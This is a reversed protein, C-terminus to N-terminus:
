RRSVFKRGQTRWNQPEPLVVEPYRSMLDKLDMRVHNIDLDGKPNLNLYRNFWVMSSEPDDKYYRFLFGLKKAVLHNTTDLSWAKQLTSASTQYRDTHTYLVGLAFLAETDEPYYRLITNYKNEAERFRGQRSYLTGLLFLADKNGPDTELVSLFSNEAKQALPSPLWNDPDTGYFGWQEEELERQLKSLYIKGKIISSQANTGREMNELVSLASELRGQAYLREANQISPTYRAIIFRISYVSVLSLM